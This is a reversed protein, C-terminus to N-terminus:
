PAPDGQSRYHHEPLAATLTPEAPRNAPASIPRALQLDGPCEIGHRALSAAVLEILDEVM